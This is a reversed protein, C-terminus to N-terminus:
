QKNIRQIRSLTIEVTAIAELNAQLTDCATTMLRLDRHNLYDICKGLCAGNRGLTLDNFLRIVNM